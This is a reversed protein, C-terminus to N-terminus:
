CEAGSERAKAGHGRTGHAREGPLPGQRKSEAKEKGRGERGEEGPRERDAHQDKELSTSEEPVWCGPWAGQVLHVDRGDM